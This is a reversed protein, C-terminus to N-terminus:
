PRNREMFCGLILSHYQIVLLVVWPNGSLSLLGHIVATPVKQHILLWNRLHRAAAIIFLVRVPFEIRRGCSNKSSGKVKVIVM